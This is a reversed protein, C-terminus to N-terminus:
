AGETMRRMASAREKEFRARGILHVAALVAVVAVIAIAEIPLDTLSVGGAAGGSAAAGQSNRLANADSQRRTHDLVERPKAGAAAAAMAIAVAEVDAIRRSWGKGFTSWTRLGRLFGARIEIAKRITKVAPAKRAAEITVPGIKGDAPVGLARQLWQAGRSVGSNVAPDFTVLDVGHPLEDGRVPQWYNKSYIETAEAHTLNRVDAVTVPQRRWDRLTGITIGMNTAGGPDKPHNVFGGEHRFIEAMCAAKNDHAM